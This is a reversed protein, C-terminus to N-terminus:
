LREEQRNIQTYGCKLCKRQQYYCIGTIWKINPNLKSFKFIEGKETVEWKDWKHLHMNKRRENNNPTLFWRM